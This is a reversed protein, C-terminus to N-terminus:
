GKSATGVALLSPRGGLIPGPGLMMRQPSHPKVAFGLSDFLAVARSTAELVGAQVLGEGAGACFAALLDEPHRDEPDSWWPGVWSFGARRRGFLYGVIRGGDKKLWSLEPARARRQELFFSRDEGFERLDIDRVAPMDAETLPRVCSASRPEIRGVLRFSRGVPRFGRAEYFPAARPVADLSITRCGLSALRVVALDFLRPGFSAGRFARDVLLEGIFGHRAYATAVCIGAPRGDREAFLCSGPDRALFIEFEERTESTWGAEAAWGAASDLDSGRLPRILTGAERDM